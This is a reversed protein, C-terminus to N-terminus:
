YLPVVNIGYLFIYKQLTTETQKTVPDMDIDTLTFGDNPTDKIPPRELVDKPQIDGAISMDFVINPCSIWRRVPVANTPAQAAM